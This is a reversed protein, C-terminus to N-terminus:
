TKTKKISGSTITDTLGTEDDYNCVYYPLNTDLTRTFLVGSIDVNEIFDQIFVVDLPNVVNYSKFVKDICSKISKIDKSLINGISLYKGANSASDKDELLSSSRVIVKKKFKLTIEELIDKKNLM